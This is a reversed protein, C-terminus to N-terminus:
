SSAFDAMTVENIPNLDRDRQVDYQNIAEIIGGKDIAQQIEDTENFSTFFRDYALQITCRLISSQGYSIRMSQLNQPWVNVFEYHSLKTTARPNGGFDRGELFTDREFKSVHLREKYNEPYNLRGYANISKNESLPNIYTM